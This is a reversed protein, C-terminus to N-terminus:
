KWLFCLRKSAAHVQWLEDDGAALDAALDRQSDRRAPSHERQASGARRGARSAGGRPREVRETAEALQGLVEGPLLPSPETQRLPPHEFHPEHGRAARTACEGPWLLWLQSAADVVYELELQAVRCRQTRELYRVISLTAADLTANLRQARSAACAASAVRAVDGGKAPLARALEGDPVCRTWTVVREVVSGTALSTSPPM